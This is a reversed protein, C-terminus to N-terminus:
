CNCFASRTAQFNLQQHVIWPAGGPLVPFMDLHTLATLAAFSECGWEFSSELGDVDDTTVSLRQLATLQRWDPPLRTDGFLELETLVRVGGLPPM